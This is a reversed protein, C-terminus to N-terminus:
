IGHDSRDVGQRRAPWASRPDAPAVPPSTPHLRNSPNSRRKFRQTIPSLNLISDHLGVFPSVSDKLREWLERYSYRKYQKLVACRLVREASMGHSGSDTSGQTLDAHVATLIAPNDDLIVSMKKLKNSPKLITILLNIAHDFLKRQSVIKKRM